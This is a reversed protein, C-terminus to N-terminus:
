LTEELRRLAEKWYAKMRDGEDATALKSHQVVVQSKSKGKDYFNVEVSTQGDAWTMRMSRNPTAKRVTISEGPLWRARGLEDSWSEYLAALPAEVTKSVSIQYGSPMQHKERLGRAQEYTNAVMQSWWGPVKEKENLYKAIESHSMNAASAADLVAFWQEWNKGTKAQVEANGISTGATARSKEKTRM